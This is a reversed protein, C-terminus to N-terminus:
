AKAYRESNPKSGSLAFFMLVRAHGIGWNTYRGLPDERGTVMWAHQIVVMLAAFYRIATGNNRHM